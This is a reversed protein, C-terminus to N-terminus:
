ALSRASLRAAGTASTGPRCRSPAVLPRQGPLTIDMRSVVDWASMRRFLALGIVCWLMAELPLRRKRM